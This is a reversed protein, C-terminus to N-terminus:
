SCFQVISKCQHFMASLEIGISFLIIAGNFLVNQSTTSDFLSDLGVLLIGEADFTCILREQLM